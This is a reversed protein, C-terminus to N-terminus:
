ALQYRVFRQIPWPWAAYKKPEIVRCRISNRLRWKARFMAHHFLSGTRRGIAGLATMVQNAAEGPTPLQPVDHVIVPSGLPNWWTEYRQRNTIEWSWMLYPQVSWVMSPCGCLAALHLGGTSQGVALDCGSLMRIAAEAECPYVTTHVGRDALLHALQSWNDAPWNKEASHARTRQVFVVWPQDPMRPVPREFRIFHQHKADCPWPKGAYEPWLVDVQDGGASCEVMTHEVVGAVSQRLQGGAVLDGSASIIRRDEFATGPVHTLDLARYELPMGDYFAAKGGGGLVIARDYGGAAFVRRVRAQWAMLEWGIEGVYPASILVRNM